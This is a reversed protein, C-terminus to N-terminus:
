PNSTRLIPLGQDPAEAAKTIRVRWVEPGNEVYEWSYADRYKLEFQSRLPRPDHDNVLDFSGGVPLGEFRGFVQPHRQGREITRVDLVDADRTEDSV